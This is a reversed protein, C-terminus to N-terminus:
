WKCGQVKRSCDLNVLIIQLILTIVKDQKFKAFVRLQPVYM